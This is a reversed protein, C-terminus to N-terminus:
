PLQLRYFQTGGTLPLSLSFVGGSIAPTNTVLAWSVPPALNPTSYLNMAAAWAPWTLQISGGSLSLGLEPPLFSATFSANTPPVLINHSADGGDSWVVFQYNSGGQTQPSPAGVLRAMGVVAVLSTATMLPQGDLALQLGDPVTDFTLQSTQPQVDQSVTQQYGNTDTVTLNLRYFSNTVTTANTPVLYSGSTTGTVPGFAALTVGNSHLEGSWTFAAPALATGWFDTAAGAYTLAQGGAFLSGNTPQTMIPVPAVLQALSLASSILRMASLRGNFYPDAVFQSKGFNCNTAAIDSPLLNVSNNVAVANGNVYLIGQRGDMVVALHTWRNVPMPSPSEIIQNYVSLNPTIACQILNSADATTLFFFQNNNQGFDFVRQWSGGASWYVWGSVTQAAGVGTPLSVYQNAAIRLSAVNGRVPDNTISAGNKLTGNYFNSADQAGNTFPYYSAWGASSSAALPFIAASNTAMRGLSDVASLWVQYLGNTAAAGSLPISFSGNTISSQPGLVTNTIGANIFNVTWTMGTPAIAADYFDNAAGAFTITDGPHYVLGQPPHSINIQPAVIESPALARSFIRVSSLRGSFFPDPPWQSKGLYLNTAHLNQPVLNAYLNTAVPTGNAYLVVSVGNMVVAVHTWVNSPFPAPADVIQEGPISNLSINFRLKGSSALPTLVTYRNTDDGFDYIRQWAAGGNWKVWAMFTQMGALGSPFSVFQNTGSLNLVRGRTPDDAFNAGGNLLGNYHGNADNADFKL